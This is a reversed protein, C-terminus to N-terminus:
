GSKRRLGDYVTSGCCWSCRMASPCPSRGRGEPWNTFSDLLRPARRRRCACSSLISRGTYPDALETSPLMSSVFGSPMVLTSTLTLRASIKWDSFPRVVIRIVLYISTKAQMFQCRTTHDGDLNTRLSNKQPDFIWAIRRTRHRQVKAETKGGRENM